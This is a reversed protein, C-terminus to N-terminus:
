PQRAFEKMADLLSQITIRMNKLQETLEFNLTSQASMFENVQHIWEHLKDHEAEAKDQAEQIQKDSLM